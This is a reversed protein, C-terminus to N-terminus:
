ALMMGDSAWAAASGGNVGVLMAVDVFTDSVLVSLM